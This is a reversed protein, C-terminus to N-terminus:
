DDKDVDVDEFLDVAGPVKTGPFGVNYEGRLKLVMDIARLRSKHDIREKFEGDKGVVIDKAEISEILYLGLRESNLGMDVLIDKFARKESAMLHENASRSININAQKAALQMNGHSLFQSIFQRKFGPLEDFKEKSEKSFLESAWPPRSFGIEKSKKKTKKPM